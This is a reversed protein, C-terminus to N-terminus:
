LGLGPDFLEAAGGGGGIREWERYEEPTDMDWLVGAESVEVMLVQEAARDLLANIGVGEPLGEILAAMEWPLVLPHGRKGGHSAVVIRGRAERAVEVVRAVVRATVGPSDGPVVVLHEIGEGWELLVGMGAEVTGRMDLTRRELRVVEAGGRAAEEAIGDAGALQAETTTVVLVRDVGGGRLAGVVRRVLPVGGLPLLLKAGGGMRKSIGCAPVVAVVRM